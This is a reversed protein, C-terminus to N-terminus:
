GPSRPLHARLANLAATVRDFRALLEKARAAGLEADDTSSSAAITAERLLVSVEAHFAQVERDDEFTLRREEPDYRM